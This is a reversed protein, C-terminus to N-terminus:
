FTNEVSNFHLSIKLNKSDTGKLVLNNSDFTSKVGYRKLLEKQFRKAIVEEKQMAGNLLELYIEVSVLESDTALFTKSNKRFNMNVKRVIFDNIHSISVSDTDEILLDPNNEEGSVIQILEGHASGLKLNNLNKDEVVELLKKNKYLGFLGLKNSRNFFQEILKTSDYFDREVFDFNGRYLGNFELITNFATPFTKTFQPTIIYKGKDNIFGVKGGIKVAALNSFFDGANEFQPNIIFNGATNIYGFNKDSRVSALSQNFSGSDNYQPNIVVNGKKDLFGRNNSEGGDQSLNFAALDNKYPLICGYKPSFIYKGKKDIVGYKNDAISVTALGESFSEASKFQYNIVLQGNKDIFGYLMNPSDYGTKENNKGVIALGEKFSAAYDFQPKIVFKGMKDIFGFKGSVNVLSLNESFESASEIEKLIFQEKGQNNICIIFGNKHTVFALGDSFNTAWLFTPKIIYNGKKNIYGLLSDENAVVALDEKFLQAITFQPNIIYEGSEDIYGWKGDVEVPILDYSFDNNSSLKSCSVTLLFLILLLFFKSM